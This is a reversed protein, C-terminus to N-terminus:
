RLQAHRRSQALYARSSDCDILDRFLDGAVRWGGGNGYSEYDAGLTAFNSFGELWKFHFEEGGGGYVPYWHWIAATSGEGSLHTAWKDMASRLADFTAGEKYKCDSFTLISNGPTAGDPPAKHQLSAYNVHADCTLVSAFGARLGADEALYADQAKGLAVADKGAGLWIMDFDQEPGYYYPTLTWASYDDVGQTDAWANWKDIVADLDAPGKGDNFKCTFLEVPIAKMEGEHQDALVVGSGALCLVGTVAGLILTRKMANEGRVDGLSQAIM